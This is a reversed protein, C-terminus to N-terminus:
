PTFVATLALQIRGGWQRARRLGPRHNDHQRLAGTLPVLVVCSAPSRATIPRKIRILFYHGKKSHKSRLRRAPLFLIRPCSADCIVGPMMFDCHRCYGNFDRQQRKRFGPMYKWLVFHMRGFFLPSDVETADDRGPPERPGNNNKFNRRKLQSGCRICSTTREM